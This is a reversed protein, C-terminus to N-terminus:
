FPIDDDLDSESYPDSYPPEPPDPGVLPLLKDEYADWIIEELQYTFEMLAWAQQASLNDPMQIYRYM